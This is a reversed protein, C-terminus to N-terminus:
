MGKGLEPKTKSKQQWGQWVRLAIGIALAIAAVGDWLDDKAIDAHMLQAAAWLGLPIRLAHQWSWPLMLMVTVGTDILIILLAAIYVAYTITIIM